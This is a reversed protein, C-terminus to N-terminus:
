GYQLKGYTTKGEVIQNILIWPQHVDVDKKPPSLGFFDSLDAKYLSETRLVASTLYLLCCRHHLRSNLCCQSTARVADNWFETEIDQYKEVIQYPAFEGYKEAFQAKKVSPAREKVHKQLEKCNLDWIFEWAINNAGIRQQQLHISKMVAKYTNFADKGVPNTPKQFAFNAKNQEFVAAM